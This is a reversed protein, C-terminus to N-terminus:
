YQPDVFWVYRNCHRASSFRPVEFLFTIGMMLTRKQLRITVTRADVRRMTAAPGTREPSSRRLAKLRILTGSSM